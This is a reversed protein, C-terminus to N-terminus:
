VAEAVQELLLVESTKDWLNLVYAYVSEEPQEGVVPAPTIELLACFSNYLMAISHPQVHILVDNVGQGATIRRAQEVLVNVADNACEENVESYKIYNFDVDPLYWGISGIYKSFEAMLVSYNTPIIQVIPKHVHKYEQSDYGLGKIITKAMVQGLQEEQGDPFVSSNLSAVFLVIRNLM